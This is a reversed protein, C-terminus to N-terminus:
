RALAYKTPNEAFAAYIYSGGSSNTGTGSNRLKLGNSVFDGASYSYTADSLDAFLFENVINYPNRMSDIIVWDNASDTRKIMM